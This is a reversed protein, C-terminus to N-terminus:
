ELPTCDGSAVPCEGGLARIDAGDSRFCILGRSDGCFSRVGTQGAAVPVVVYAFSGVSTPSSVAPDVALIRGPEFRRSYGSKPQRAALVPDLFRPEDTGYGPVCGVSPTALCELNSEFWGGNAARYSAQASILTRIDGIAAAENAAVRARLLSPIAIAAVMGVGFIGVVLVAAVVVITPTSGAAVGAEPQGPALLLYLIVILNACPVLGLLLYWGSRGLDHWRRIGGGIYAVIVIPFLILTVVGVLLGAADEGVGLMGSVLSIAIVTTWFLAISGLYVIAFQSRSFRGSPRFCGALLRFPNLTSEEGSVPAARAHREPSRSGVIADVPRHCFSCAVASAMLTKGCAPCRKM